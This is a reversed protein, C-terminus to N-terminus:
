WRRPAAGHAASRLPRRPDAVQDVGIRDDRLSKQDILQPRHLRRPDIDGDERRGALPPSRSVGAIVPDLGQHPPRWSVQRQGPRDIRRGMELAQPSRRRGVQAQQALVQDTGRHAPRPSAVRAGPLRNAMAASEEQQRGQDRAPHPPEAHDVQVGVEGLVRELDRRSHAPEAARAVREGGVGLVEVRRRLPPQGLAEGLGAKGDGAMAVALRRQAAEGAAALPVLDVADRVSDITPDKSGGVVARIRTQDQADAPQSGLLTEVRQDVGAGTEGRGPVAAHDEALASELALQPAADAPSAEFAHDLDPTEHRLRLQGLPVPSRRHHHNQRGPHQRVAVPVADRVHHPLRHGAAGRDDAGRDAADGLGDPVPDVTAQDGRVVGRGQSSDEM